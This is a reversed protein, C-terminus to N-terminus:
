VFMGIMGMLWEHFNSAVQVSYDPYKYEVVPFEGNADPNKIDFCLFTGGLNDGFPVLGNENESREELSLDDFSLLGEYIIFAENFYSGTPCRKLFTRYSPPLEGFRDEERAIDDDKFMKLNLNHQDRYKEILEIFDEYM